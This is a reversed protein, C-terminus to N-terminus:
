PVITDYPFDATIQSLLHAVNGNKQAYGVVIKQALNTMLRNRIMAQENTVRKKDRNFPTIILLRGENLAKKLAPEIHEKMGRALVVIVPQKGKLLYALVDKELRSHFGSIVCNGADRQAIAWDFCKLVVSAPVERSCLFATKYLNLLKSNGCQEVIKIEDPYRTDKEM